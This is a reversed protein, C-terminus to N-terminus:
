PSPKGRVTEDLRAFFEQESISSLEGREWAHLRSRIEDAWAAERDADVVEGELSALLEGALAARADVPLRLAEAM